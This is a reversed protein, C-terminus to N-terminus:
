VVMGITCGILLAAVVGLGVELVAAVGFVVSCVALVVQALQKTSRSKVEVMFIEEMSSM